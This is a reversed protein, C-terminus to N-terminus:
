HDEHFSAQPALHCYISTARIFDTKHFPGMTALPVTLAPQFKLVFGKSSLFNNFKEIHLGLDISRLVNQPSSPISSQEAVFTQMALNVYKLDSQILDQAANSNVYEAPYLHVFAIVRYLYACALAYRTREDHLVHVGAHNEYKVVPGIIVKSCYYYLYEWNQNNFLEVMTIVTDDIMGDIIEKSMEPIM